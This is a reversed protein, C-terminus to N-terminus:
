RPFSRTPRTIVTVRFLRLRPRKAHQHSLPQLREQAHRTVPPVLALDSVRHSGCMRAIVLAQSAQHRGDDNENKPQRKRLKERRLRSRHMAGTEAHSRVTKGKPRAVILWCRELFAAGRSRNLIILKRSKGAQTEPSHAPPSGASSTLSDRRGFLVLRVLRGERGVIVGTNEVVRVAGKTCTWGGIFFASGQGSVQHDGAASSRRLLRSDM